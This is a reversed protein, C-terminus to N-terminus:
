YITVTNEPFDTPIDEELERAIQAPTKTARLPNNVVPEVTVTDQYKGLNKLLFISSAPNLKGSLHWSELMSVILQHYRRAVNGRESDEHCWQWFPVRTVGLSLALGEIFPRAGYQNCVAFYQKIRHEIAEPDKTNVVPLSALYLNMDIQEAIEAPTCNPEQQTPLNKKTIKVM